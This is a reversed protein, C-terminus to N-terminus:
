TGGTVFKLAEARRGEPLATNLQRVLQDALMTLESAWVASRCRLTVVGDRESIPTAEQAIREGAAGAWATQVSALLSPPAVGARFRAIAGAVPRPRRPRDHEPM